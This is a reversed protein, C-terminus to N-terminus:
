MVGIRAATNVHGRKKERDEGKDKMPIIAM